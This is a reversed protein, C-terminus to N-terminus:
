GRSWVRFTCDSSGSYGGCDGGGLVCAAPGKNPKACLPSSPNGCRVVDGLSARLEDVFGKADSMMKKAPGFYDDVKKVGGDPDKVKDAKVGMMVCVVELVLKVAAPPNGMNKVMDIDPKKITDLASVAANLAPIAEALDAECDDKM